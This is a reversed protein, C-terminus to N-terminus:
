RRFGNFLQKLSGMKSFLIRDRVKTEEDLFQTKTHSMIDHCEKFAKNIIGILQDWAYKAQDKPHIIKYGMGRVNMLCLSHNKLVDKRLREFLQMFTFQQDAIAKRVSEMDPYDSFSLPKIHFQEKLWEHPILEGIEYASINECLLYWEPSEPIINESKREKITIM